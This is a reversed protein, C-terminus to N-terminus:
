RILIMKKTASYKGCKLKYFYVGSNVPNGFEDEGNWDISHMLQTSAAAVRNSCELIDLTKVKQGKINYIELTVFRSTQTVSFSITTTKQFPNPYNRYLEFPKKDITFDDYSDSNNSSGPTPTEFFQWLSDGDNSRGFSIDTSQEGFTLSDIITFGNPAILGIQEGDASLKFNLHLIGDECDRDAWLLLFGHPEITTSDPYESPIQWCTLDSLDDTLYFGSIDVPENSTNYIEIWDDYEGEPDAITTQNSAMFENIVLNMPYEPISDIITQTDMWDVRDQIWDKLYTIENEYTGGIYPNPWVYEDLIQWRSFNREQADGIEAVLSDIINNLDNDSFITERLLNWQMNFSERFTSDAWVRRMWFAKHHPNYEIEWGETEWGELYDANGFGLNFDWVPGLALRGDISDRDKYMFTSLRYSDVNNTLENIIIFHIFSNFDIHDYYGTEPDNYNEAAMMTEFESFYNMIYDRQEQVIEDPRPYHYQYFIEFDDPFYPESNWGDNNDGTLKDIKIIYGGTLADGSIDEPGIESIDVRNDDRKIKEFLVYLGKYDGNLVLECFRHRSAYRGSERALKYALVNRILSKDSYPAYLIWDNESPLGMLPVNLNEGNEDQTEFAYQKKPFSQSSSGRTEISVFGDYNNFPDTIQNFEGNDIVGMFATIRSSDPIEQGFTDIIVIPLHSSEFQFPTYFWEPVPGFFSYNDEVDFSLFFISSLDSSSIDVNHIQIALVNDGDQFISQMQSSYISNCDPLEGNYMQAEHDYSTVQDFPIFSGAEGLNDTRCIEFGNLYAIFGDDYDAHLLARQLKTLDSILFTKRLYLSITPEIITEDDEDGYGIGGIGTEWISDDFSVDKWNAAPESIGVFYKWEDSSYIATEWHAFCFSFLTLFLFISLLKM